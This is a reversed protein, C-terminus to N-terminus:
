SLQDEKMIHALYGSLSEESANGIQTGTSWQHFHGALQEITARHKDMGVAAIKKRLETKREAPSQQPQPPEPKRDAADDVLDSRASGKWMDLAVGFSQAANRLADGIVEKIADGGRKGPADGYGPHTKGGITLRIWLGGNSDFAPLGDQNYAMPEWNWQPDVQNFRERVYAHGVFDLHGHATTLTQKCAGCKRPKHQNCNRERCPRCFITPKHGISEAPFPAGLQALMEKNM